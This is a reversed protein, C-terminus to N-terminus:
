RTSIKWGRGIYFSIRRFSHFFICGRHMDVKGGTYVRMWGCFTIAVMHSTQKEYRRTAWSWITASFSWKEHLRREALPMLSADHNGSPPIGWLICWFWIRSGLKKQLRFFDFISKWLIFLYCVSLTKLASKGFEDSISYFGFFVTFFYVGGTYIRKIVM